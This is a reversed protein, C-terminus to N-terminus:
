LKRLVAHRNSFTSLGYLRYCYAVDFYSIPWSANNARQTSSKHAFGNRLLTGLRKESKFFDANRLYM